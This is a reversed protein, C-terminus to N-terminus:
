PLNNLLSCLDDILEFLTYEFDFTEVSADPSDFTQVMRPEEVYLCEQFQNNLTQELQDYLWGRTDAVFCIWEEARIVGNDYVDEDDFPAIHRFISQSPYREYLQLAITAINLCARDFADRPVFSSVRAAFQRLHCRNYIKRFMVDGYHVVARFDSMLSNFEEEQYSDKDEVYWEVLMEYYSDMETSSDRYYPIGAEHYLYAFVSLLLEGARKRKKNQLLRYFPLVPIYYLTSTMEYTEISAAQVMGEDDEVIGITARSKTELQREMDWHALLINYPYPKDKVHTLECSYVGALTSLSKLLGQEV